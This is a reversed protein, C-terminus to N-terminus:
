FSDSRRADAVNPGNASSAESCKRRFALVAFVGEPFLCVELEAKTGLAVVDSEAEAECGELIMGLGKDKDTLLSEGTALIIDDMDVFCSLYKAESTRDVLRRLKLAPLTRDVSSFL